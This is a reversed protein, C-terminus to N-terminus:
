TDFGLGRDVKLAALQGILDKRTGDLNKTAIAILDNCAKYSEWTQKKKRHNDVDFDESLKSLARHAREDKTKGTFEAGPEYQVADWAKEFAYKANEFEMRSIEECKRYEMAKESILNLYGRAIGLLEKIRAPIWTNETCIEIKFVKLYDEISTLFVNLGKVHEEM